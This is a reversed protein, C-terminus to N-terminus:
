PAAEQPKVVTAGELTYGGGTMKKQDVMDGIQVDMSIGDGEMHGAGAPTQMQLPWDVPPAADPPIVAADADAGADRHDIVGADDGKGGGGGGCASSFLAAAAIAACVCRVMM